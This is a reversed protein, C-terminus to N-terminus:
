LPSYPFSLKRKNLYGLDGKQPNMNIGVFPNKGKRLFFKNFYFVKHVQPKLFLTWFCSKYNNPFSLQHQRTMEPPRVNM